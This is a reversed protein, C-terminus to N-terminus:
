EILEDLLGLGKGKADKMFVKDYGCLRRELVVIAAVDTRWTELVVQRSLRCRGLLQGHARAVTYMNGLSGDMSAEPHFPILIPLLAKSTNMFFAQRIIGHLPGELSLGIRRGIYYVFKKDLKAVKLSVAFKWVLMQVETPLQPFRSFQTATM